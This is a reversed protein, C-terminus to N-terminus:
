LLLRLWGPKCGCEIHPRRCTRCRWRTLLALRLHALEVAFAVVFVPLLEPHRM